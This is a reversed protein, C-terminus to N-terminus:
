RGSAAGSTPGGLRAGILGRDGRLYDEVDLPRRGARQLRLLALGGEGCAAVALARRGPLAEGLPEGDGASVLGPTPDAPAAAPWAARVILREGRHSTAALPWPDCARVQRWIERAPRTWDIAGDDKGLAPAWTAIAEDQPEARVRGAVWGPLLEMLLAAGLEAIRPTLTATTDLPGIPTSASGLVPGADLERVIRMVTAGTRADGARVAAAVPSAGRHRPLLSAHVNLIGHPIAEILHSPLIHASAALVGADPALAAIEATVGRRIREPAIVPVGAERALGAVPTPVPRGSRGRPRDPQTVAAALEVGPAEVLRRLTPLAYDPSGFFVVRM